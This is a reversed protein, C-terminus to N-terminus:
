TPFFRGFSWLCRQDTVHFIKHEKNIDEVNVNINTIGAGMKSTEKM